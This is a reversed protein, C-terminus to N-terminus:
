QMCPARKRVRMIEEQKLTARASPRKPQPRIDQCQQHYVERQIRVERFAGDSSIKSLIDISNKFWGLFEKQRYTRVSSNTCM